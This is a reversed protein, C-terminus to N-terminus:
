KRGVAYKLLKGIISEPVRQVTDDSRKVCGTGKEVVTTPATLISSIQTPITNTSKEMDEHAHVGSLTDYNHGIEGRRKRCVTDKAKEKWRMIHERVRVSLSPEMCDSLHQVGYPEESQANPSPISHISSSSNTVDGINNNFPLDSAQRYYEIARRDAIFPHLLLTAATPRSDPTKELLKSMFSALEPSCTVSSRCNDGGHRYNPPHPWTPLGTDHVIADFLDTPIDSYYPTYGYVCIYSVIGCAWIDAKFMDHVKDEMLEDCLEPAYYLWTGGSSMSCRSSIVEDSSGFDSLKLQGHLTLLINEIKIDRHVISQNHIHDVASLLQGMWRSLMSEGVTTYGLYPCLYYPAYSNPAFNTRAATDVLISGNEAYEMVLTTIIM